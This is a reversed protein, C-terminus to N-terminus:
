CINLGIMNDFSRLSNTRFFDLLPLPEASAEGRQVAGFHLDLTALNEVETATILRLWFNMLAEPKKRFEWQHKEFVNKM